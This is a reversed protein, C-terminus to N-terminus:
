GSRAHAWTLARARMGLEAYVLIDVDKVQQRSSLTMDLPKHSAGTGLTWALWDDSEETADFLVVEFDDAIFRPGARYRM